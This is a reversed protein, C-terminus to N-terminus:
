DKGHCAECGLYQFIRKGEAISEENTPIEVMAVPVDYKKNLRSQGMGYLALLAVVLLGILVGAIIGLWKLFKKMKKM